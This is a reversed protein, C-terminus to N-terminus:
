NVTFPPIGEVKSARTTATRAVCGDVEDRRKMEIETSEIDNSAKGTWSFPPLLPPPRHRGQKRAEQQLTGVRKGAAAEKTPRHKLLRRYRPVPEPERQQQRSSWLYTTLRGGGIADADATPGPDSPLCRCPCPWPIRYSQVQRAYISPRFCNRENRTL